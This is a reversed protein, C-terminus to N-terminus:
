KIEEPGRLLVIIITIILVAITLRLTIIAAEWLSM